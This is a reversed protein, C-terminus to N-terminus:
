MGAGPPTVAVNSPPPPPVTAPAPRPTHPALWGAAYALVGPVAALILAQGTADVGHPFLYRALAWDILGAALAAASGAQVKREAAM